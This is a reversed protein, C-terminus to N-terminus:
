GGAWTHKHPPNCGMQIWKNSPCPSGRGDLKHLSDPFHDKCKITKYKKRLSNRDITTKKKKREKKM